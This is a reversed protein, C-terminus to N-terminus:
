GALGAAAQKVKKGAAYTKYILGLLGWPLAVIAALAAASGIAVPLSVVEEPSLNPAPFLAGITGLVAFVGFLVVFGRRVSPWFPRIGTLAGVDLAPGKMHASAGTDQNRFFLIDAPAVTKAEQAKAGRTKADKTKADQRVAYIASAWHGSAVPMVTADLTIPMQKGDPMPAFFRHYNRSTTSVHIPASGGGYGNIIPASGGGSASTQIETVSEVTGVLFDVRVMSVDYPGEEVHIEIAGPGPKEIMATM